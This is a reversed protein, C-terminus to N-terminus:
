PLSQKWARILVAHIERECPLQSVTKSGELAEPTFRFKFATTHRRRRKVM